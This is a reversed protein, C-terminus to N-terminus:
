SMLKIDLYRLYSSALTQNNKRVQNMLQAQVSVNNSPLNCSPGYINYVNLGSLDVNYLVQTANNCLASTNPVDIPFEHAFDCNAMLAEYTEDSILSHSHFYEISGKNDYYADSWANGVQFLFFLDSFLFVILLM